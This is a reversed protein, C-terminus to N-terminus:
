LYAGTLADRERTENPEIELNCFPCRDNCDCDHLDRWVEGCPCEFLREFYVGFEPPWPPAFGDPNDVADLWEPSSKPLLPSPVRM